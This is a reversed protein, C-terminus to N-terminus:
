NLPRERLLHIRAMRTNQYEPRCSNKTLSATAAAETTPVKEEKEKGVAVRQKVRRFCKKTREPMTETRLFTYSRLYMQKCSISDVVKSRLRSRGHVDVAGVSKM